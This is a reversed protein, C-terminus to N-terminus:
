ICYCYKGSGVHYRSGDPLEIDAQTNAPVEFSFEYNDGDKKWESIISGHISEYSSKAYTLTGGPIPRITFRSYGPHEEQLRIGSVYGFLYDCVAGYSYHNFSGFFLNAGDWSEYITTAGKTIPFLWSPNGTQELVKYAADVYGCETLVNLLFPTSLFGTNLHYNAQVVLELLKEKVKKLKEGTALHFKIVRVYPAQRGEEVFRITGDECILHKEYLKAVKESIARYREADEEKGLIKAIQALLGSSYSLYATAVAPEGKSIKGEIFGPPFFRMVFGPESWEGWHFGSDWIYDADPVGDEGCQVNWLENEYLPNRRKARRLMNEVWAKASAYQNELIQPDGYGMYMRYPIIVAADGWGVSGDPKDEDEEGDRKMMMAVMGSRKPDGSLREVFAKQCAENHFGNSPAISPVAGSETQESAVDLMWKEFFSYVDMMEAATKAYVQADGCWASRERTPCDTPVDCFNGKQSWRSNEVLRNLLPNSCEFTFTEELASYVAIATFDGPLIPGDYGTVKCYRFGFISFEPCFEDTEGNATYSVTQFRDYLNSERVFVNTDDFCGDHLAECHELKIQQGKKLGRLKMRVYGAINQGFDVVLDHNGDYFPKGALEEMEMVPAASEATLIDFTQMADPALHVTEWSSDDYEIDTWGDPELRADYVTGTKPDAELLGGTATRFEEDTVILERSGDLYELEIQGMYHVRRGYNCRLGSAGCGGRWWGDGLHVAWVNEGAKLQDTIDDVQYQLRVLYNTNGPAFVRDSGKKGNIWFRYSGHATQYIRASKLGSKVRFKKRLYPVPVPNLIDADETEPEIFKGKWDEPGLLGIEFSSAAVAIGLNTKVEVSWNLKQRSHLSVGEYLVNQTQSSRVEESDWLINEQDWVLIRYSQQAINKGTSRIKWSFRLLRSDIGLPSVLHNVKLGYVEVM